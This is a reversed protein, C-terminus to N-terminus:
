KKEGALKEILGITKRYNDMAMKVNNEVFMWAASLSNYRLSYSKEKGALEEQLIDLAKLRNLYRYLTPKTTGLFVLMEDVLWKKDPRLLFVEKFLRYPISKKISEMDMTERENIYGIDLLFESLVLDLDDSNPPSKYKIHIEFMKVENVSYINLNLKKRLSDILHHVM